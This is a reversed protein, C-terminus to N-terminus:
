SPTQALDRLSLLKILMAILRGRNKHRAGGLVDRKRKQFNYDKKEHCTISLIAAADQEWDLSSALKLIVAHRHISTPDKIINNLWQHVM